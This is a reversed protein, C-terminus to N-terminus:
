NGALLRAVTRRGIASMVPNSEAYYWVLGMAQQLAWAQGRAWEDDDSGLAARLVARPETELLHWAGVLDLAPDAPGLGGVDLVGALRGGCILVNGPMLDGHTMADPADRQADRLDAWLRRAPAVDLLGESREFCDDLYSDHARADGGRGTGRFTRGHTPIGRVARIFAALDEAFGVCDGPDEQTADVGSLWTQVSWPVPCGDGPEGVALPEPTAFPTRGHLEGAASAEAEVQARVADPEDAQLPVRVSMDEGLRFVANVTGSSPVATVPLHAWRPMQAAVLRRVTVASVSLQGPHMTVARGQGM